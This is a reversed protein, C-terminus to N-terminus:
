RKSCEGNLLQDKTPNYGNDKLNLTGSMKQIANRLACFDYLEPCNTISIENLSEVNGLADISNLSPLGNLTLKNGGVNRINELGEFSSLSELSYSSSDFSSTEAIIEFNGGISKLSSLGDLSQLNRLSSSEYSSSYNQSYSSASVEFDGEITVLKGLGNFSELYPLSSCNSFSYCSSEAIVKFNGGVTTLSELGEFSRLNKLSSFSANTSYYTNTCSAKAIIKFNGGIETLNNLGEYSTISAEETILSGTIKKLGSLGDLSTLSSCDITLNGDIETLLNGLRQLTRINSGYIRINGIVKTYGATYFDILDQDKYFDVYGSYTSGPKAAQIVKISDSLTSKKDKIFVQASREESTTNPTIELNVVSSALAKTQPMQKVWEQVTDPIIVEYDINSQVEVSIQGGGASM